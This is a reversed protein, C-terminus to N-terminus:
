LVKHKAVTAVFDKLYFPDFYAVDKFDATAFADEALQVMNAALPCINDIFRANPSTIVSQCKGAGDGYFAITNNKLEDTFSDNDIILARTSGIQELNTNYIATYVEMRRADIMSCYLDTKPETKRAAIAMSKLTDIAILKAGTAYCIGKATSVGIRLGTYSGPGQSVAVADLMTAEIGTEALLQEVFVTLLTAHSKGEYSVREALLRGDRALAASCVSTSTEL